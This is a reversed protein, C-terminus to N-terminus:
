SGAEKKKARPMQVWDMEPKPKYKVVKEEAEKADRHVWVVEGVDGVKVAGPGKGERAKKAVEVLMEAHLKKREGWEKESKACDVWLQYHTSFTRRLEEDEVEVAEDKAWVREGEHFLEYFGCPWMPYDCGVKGGEEATRISRNLRAVRAKIQGLTFPPEDLHLVDLGVLEERKGDGGCEECVSDLHEVVHRGTGVCNACEVQRKWGVVFLGPLKTAAMEVAVQWQYGVKGALVGAATGGGTGERMFKVELVRLKGVDGRGVKGGAKGARKFVVEDPHTRVVGGPVPLELAIQGTEDRPWADKLGTSSPVVWGHEEGLRRITKAEMNRGADFAAQISAPVPAVTEGMASLVLFKECAGLSSARWVRGVGEEEYTAPRNDQGEVVDDLGSV